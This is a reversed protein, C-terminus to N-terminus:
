SQADTILKSITKDKEGSSRSSGFYYGYIDKYTGIAAGIVTGILLNVETPVDKLGKILVYLVIFIFTAVGLIALINQLYNKGSKTIEIERGRANATDALVADLEQIDLKRLELFRQQDEPTLRAYDTSGVVLDKIADLAGVFPIVKAAELAQDFGKSALFKGVRTESFPKSM